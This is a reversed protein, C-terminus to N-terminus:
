CRIGYKVTSTTPYHSYTRLVTVRSLVRNGPSLFILRWHCFISPFSTHTPFCRYSRALSALIWQWSQMFHEGAKKLTGGDKIGFIALMISIVTFSVGSAAWTYSDLPLHVGKLGELNSQSFSVTAIKLQVRQGCHPLWSLPASEPYLFSGEIASKKLFNGYNIQANAGHGKNHGDSFNFKSGLALQACTKRHAFKRKGEIASHNEPDFLNNRGSSILLGHLNSNQRKWPFDLTKSHYTISPNLELLSHLRSHLCVVFIKFSETSNRSGQIVFLKSTSAAVPHIKFAKPNLLSLALFIYSPNEGCYNLKRQTQIFKGKEFSTELNPLFIVYIQIISHGFYNSIIYENKRCSQNTKTNYRITMMLRNTKLHHLVKPFNGNKLFLEFLKGEWSKQHGMKTKINGIIHFTARPPVLSDIKELNFDSSILTVSFILLFKGTYILNKMNYFGNPVFIFLSTRRKLHVLHQLVQIHIFYKRYKGGLEQM